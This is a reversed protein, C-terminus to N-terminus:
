GQATTSFCGRVVWFQCNAFNAFNELKSVEQMYFGGNRAFRHNKRLQVGEIEGM